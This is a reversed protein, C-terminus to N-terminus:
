NTSKRKKFEELAQRLAQGKAKADETLERVQRVEEPNSKQAEFEPGNFSDLQRVISECIEIVNNRVSDTKEDFLEQTEKQISRRILEFLDKKHLRRRMTQHMRSTTGNGTEAACARYTPIMLGLIYSSIHDGMANFEIQRGAQKEDKQVGQDGFKPARQRASCADGAIRALARGDFCDNGTWEESMEIAHDDFVRDYQRIFDLIDSAIANELGEAYDDIKQGLNLRLDTIIQPDVTVLAKQEFVSLWAELSQVLSSLEVELFHLTADYQAQAVVSHCFRRLDPICSGQIARQDRVGFADGEYDRNGVCFVEIILGVAASTYRRQLARTVDTNRANVFLYKYETEAAQAAAASRLVERADERARLAKMAAQSSAVSKYMEVAAPLDIDDAHTCVITVRGRKGSAKMQDSVSKAVSEDSVVRNIKAVIFVEHCRLLYQEAKRVRALNIDRYGPLDALVVGTKLVQAGLYIRVINTLPWLGERMFYAVKDHCEMASTATATWRGNAADSPWEILSALRKLGNLIREFAGEGEDRLHAPAVEPQDPFISQLTSAAVGSKTKIERLLQPDDEELEKELGPQYLERYSVLLEHLQEDIEAEDCYEVEITFPATHQRSRRHYETVFSTVASGHDGKHALNPIDLLSNILSSKGIRRTAPSEYYRLRDASARLRGLESDSQSALSCAGLSAHISDAIAKGSKLCNQFGKDYFPEVPLAEDGVNYIRPGNGLHLHHMEAVLTTSSQDRGSEVPSAEPILQEDRQRPQPSPSPSPRPTADYLDRATSPTDLGDNSRHSLDLQALQPEVLDSLHHQTAPEDDDASHMNIILASDDPSTSELPSSTQSAEDSPELINDAAPKPPVHM